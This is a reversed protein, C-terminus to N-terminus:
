NISFFWAPGTKNAKDRVIQKLNFRGRFVGNGYGTARHYHYLVNNFIEKFEAECIRVDECGHFVSHFAADAFTAPTINTVEIYTFVARDKGISGEFIQWFKLVM